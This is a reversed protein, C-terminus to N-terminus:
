AGPLERSIASHYTVNKKLISFLEAHSLKRQQPHWFDLVLGLTPDRFYSLDAPACLEPRKRDIPELIEKLIGFTGCALTLHPKYLRFQKELLPWNKLAHKKIVGPRSTPGGPEKKLNVVSLRRLYQRKTELDRVKIDEYKLSPDTVLAAWRALNDWTRPRDYKTGFDRLDGGGKAWKGGLDNPEKLVVLLRFPQKLYDDGAGDPVSGSPYHAFIENEQTKITKM